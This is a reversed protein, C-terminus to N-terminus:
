FRAEFAKVWRDMSIVVKGRAHGKELYRIAEPTESVSYTRDIVPTVKGAEILEKLVVLDERNTAALFPLLRQSVFLSLVRAKVVRGLGDIWRGASGGVLVLTGKPTLVRRCDSLSRDVLDLILDYRPGSRAFDERTHDIVHDAGISRVMNVNTTSCVGTVEAGFAKAIQVAFTGVGGAAGNILVKQGSKVKGADRLAQLATFGALPAAAAQEFTAGAPKPAFHNEGACVYEAFAGKCSGFVEDGPQLQKVNKGVAVVSGAVDVGRVKERPNLLGFAMRAIYPLGRMLHWDAPNVAAAHVRVLVENGNVAPKDIEQLQLVDPSGYKDQVIAKMADRHLSLPPSPSVQVGLAPWHESM